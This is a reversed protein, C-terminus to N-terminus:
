EALRLRVSMGPRLEPPQEILDIKVPYHSDGTSTLVPEISITRVQGPIERGLAEILLEVRQGRRIDAVLFEDLDTTEVQLRSLDGVTILMAGPLVTDGQRVLLSTVTGHMPSVVIETNASTRVRAVEQQDRVPDGVEVLLQHVVGGGITGVRASEIPRV